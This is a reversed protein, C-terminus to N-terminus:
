FIFPCYPPTETRLAADLSAITGPRLEEIWGAKAFARLDADGLYAAGLLRIDLALDARDKTRACTAGKTNGAIRWRGANEPFRDDTVEVVVDCENSLTRAEIATPLDLLRVYLADEIQRTAHRPYTLWLHIPDDIPGNFWSVKAMLDFTLAYRWLAAHAAPDVSMLRYIQFKGDDHAATWDPKVNYRMFGRVGKDDEALVTYLTSAGERSSPPDWTQRAHWREDISPVGSRAARVESYIPQSYEFDDSSEVMRLRLSSTWRRTASIVTRANSRPACCGPRGGTASARISRPDAAWLAAIPESRGLGDAHLNDLMTSMVGRRSSDPPRRHLHSGRHSGLWRARECRSLLQRLCRGSPGRGLCSLDSRRRHCRLDTFKIEDDTFGEGFATEDVKAIERLAAERDAFGELYNKIKVPM